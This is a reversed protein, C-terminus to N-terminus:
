GNSGGRAELSSQQHLVTEAFESWMGKEAIFTDRLSLRAHLKGCEERWHRLNTELQEIVTGRRDMEAALEDPTALRKITFVSM